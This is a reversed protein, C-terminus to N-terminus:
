VHSFNSVQPEEFQLKTSHIQTRRLLAEAVAPTSTQQQPVAISSREVDRFSTSSPVVVQDRHFPPEELLGPNDEHRTSPDCNTSSIASDPEDTVHRSCDTSSVQRKSMPSGDAIAHKSECLSSSPPTTSTRRSTRPLESSDPEVDEDLILTQSSSSHKDQPPSLTPRGNQANLLESPALNDVNHGPDQIKRLSPQYLITELLTDGIKGRKDLLLLLFSGRESPDTRLMDIMEVQALRWTQFLWAAAKRIDVSANLQKSLQDFDERIRTM